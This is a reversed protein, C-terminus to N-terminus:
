SHKSKPCNNYNLGALPQGHNAHLSNLNANSDFQGYGFGSLTKREYNGSFAWYVTNLFSVSRETIIYLDVYYNETMFSHLVQEDFLSTLLVYLVKDDM